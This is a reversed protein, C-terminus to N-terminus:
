GWAPWFSNPEYAGSFGQGYTEQLEPMKKIKELGLSSSFNVKVEGAQGKKTTIIVAGNAARVGYLATAAAGKLVSVSEIDAPNIDVARNSLGRPTNNEGSETTSNDIPVGDVVFLPQNDANPDLSNIGRIIIRSSMGPAGGSNTVQVGAVQGQLANVINPQKMSEIETANISQAAYGLAKKDQSIGFATVIVENLQEIDPLLTVNITNSNGATISQTKYGIFSYVIKSRNDPVTLSYNGNLDTVTGTTTGEIIISVGPIAEGDEQSTVKGTIALQQGIASYSFLCMLLFLFLHTPRKKM